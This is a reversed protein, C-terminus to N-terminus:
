TCEETARLEYQAVSSRRVFGANVPVVVLDIEFPRASWVRVVCTGSPIGSSVSPASGMNSSAVTGYSCTQSSSLPGTGVKYMDVCVATGSNPDDFQTGRVRAITDQGWTTWQAGTFPMMAGDPHSTAGFRSGERVANSLGIAHTISLGATTLGFLLMVLIPLILALEVAAAGRPARTRGRPDTRTATPPEAGLAEFSRRPPRRHM